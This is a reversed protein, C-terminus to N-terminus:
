KDKKRLEDKGEEVNEISVCMWAGVTGWYGGGGKEEEEELEM